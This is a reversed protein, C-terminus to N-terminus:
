HINMDKDEYREYLDTPPGLVEILKEGILHVVPKAEFISYWIGVPANDPGYLVYGKLSQGLRLTRNRMEELLKGYASSNPEIKQWLREELIYDKKVGLIATPGSEPGGYYYLYLPSPEGSEFLGTVETDPAYHGYNKLSGACGLLLVAVAGVAFFLFSSKRRKMM